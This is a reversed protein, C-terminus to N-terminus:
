EGEGVVVACEKERVGLLVGFFSVEALPRTVGLFFVVVVVVGFFIVLCFFSFFFPAGTMVVGDDGLFSFLPRLGLVGCRVKAGVLVVLCLFSFFFPAMVVGGDGMFVLLRLAFVGCGVLVTLGLKFM